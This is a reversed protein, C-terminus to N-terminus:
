SIELSDITSYDTQVKHVTNEKCLNLYLCCLKKNKELKKKSNDEM